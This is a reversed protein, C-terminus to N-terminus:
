FDPIGVNVFQPKSPYCWIKCKLLWVVPLNLGQFFDERLENHPHMLLWLNDRWTQPQEKPEFWLDQLAQIGWVRAPYCGQPVARRIQCLIPTLTFQNRITRKTKKFCKKLISLLSPERDAGSAATQAQLLENSDAEGAIELVSCFFVAIDLPGGDPHTWAPLCNHVAAGQWCDFSLSHIMLLLALNFVISCHWVKENGRRSCGMGLVRPDIRMCDLTWQSGLERQVQEEQYETVNEIILVLARSKRSSM